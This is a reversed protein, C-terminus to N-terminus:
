ENMMILTKLTKTNNTLHPNVPMSIPLFCLLGNTQMQVGCGTQHRGYIVCGDAVCVCACMGRPVNNGECMHSFAASATSLM